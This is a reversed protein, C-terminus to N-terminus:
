AARGSVFKYVWQPLPHGGNDAMARDLDNCSRHAPAEAGFMSEEMAESTLRGCFVCAAADPHANLWDIAASAAMLAHDILELFEGEPSDLVLDYLTSQTMRLHEVAAAMSARERVESLAPM